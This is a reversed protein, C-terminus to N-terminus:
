LWPASKEPMQLFIERSSPDDIAKDPVASANHLLSSEVPNSVIKV